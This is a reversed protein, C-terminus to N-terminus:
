NLGVTYIFDGDGAYSILLGLTFQPLYSLEFPTAM